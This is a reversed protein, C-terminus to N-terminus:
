SLSKQIVQDDSFVEWFLFLRKFRFQLYNNNNNNHEVNQSQKRRHRKLTKICYAYLVMIITIFKLLMIIYWSWLLIETFTEGAIFLDDDITSRTM